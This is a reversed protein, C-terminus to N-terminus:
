RRLCCDTRSGEQAGRPSAPPPEPASCATGAAMADRPACQDLLAPSRPAPIGQATPDSALIKEWAGSSGGAGGGEVSLKPRAQVSASTTPDSKGAAAGWGGSREAPSAPQGPFGLEQGSGPQGAGSPLARGAAASAGNAGPQERHALTPPRM